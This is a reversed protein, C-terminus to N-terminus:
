AHAAIGMLKSLGQEAAVMTARVLLGRRRLVHPSVAVHGRRMLSTAWEGSEVSAFLFDAIGVPEPLPMGHVHSVSWNQFARCATEEAGDLYSSHWHHATRLDAALMTRADDSLRRYVQHMCEHRAISALGDPTYGSDLLILCDMARHTSFAVGGVPSYPQGDVLYRRLAEAGYDDTRDGTAIIPRGGVLVSVWPCIRDVLAAIDSLSERTTASMASGLFLAAEATDPMEFSAADHRVILGARLEYVTPHDPADIVTITRIM